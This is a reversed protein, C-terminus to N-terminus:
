KSVAAKYGLREVARVLRAPDTKGSDYEVRAQHHEYSVSAKTVGPVRKLVSEIGEACSSCHMGSITLLISKRGAAWMATALLFVLLSLAVGPSRKM